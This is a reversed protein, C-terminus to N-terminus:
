SGVRKLLWRGAVVGGAALVAVLGVLTLISGADPNEVLRAM